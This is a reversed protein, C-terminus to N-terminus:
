NFSPPQIPRNPNNSSGGAQNSWSFNLHERWGPNYTNSYPNNGRNYNETNYNGVYNVSVLNNLYDDYVHGGGCFVCSITDISSVNQEVFVPSVLSVQSAPSAFVVPSAMGISGSTTVAKLM